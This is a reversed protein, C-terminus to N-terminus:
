WTESEFRRCHCPYGLFVPAAVQLIVELRKPNFGSTILGVQSVNEDVSSSIEHLQVGPHCEARSADSVM